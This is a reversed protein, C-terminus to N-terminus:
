LKEMEEVPLMRAAEEVVGTLGKVAERYADSIVRRKEELAHAEAGFGDAGRDLKDRLSRVEAWVDSIIATRDQGWFLDERGPSRGGVYYRHYAAYSMDMAYCAGPIGTEPHALAELAGRADGAALRQLAADFARLERDYFIHLPSANEPEAASLYNVNRVLYGAAERLRDNIEVNMEEPAGELRAALLNLLNMRAAREELTDLARSLEALEAGAEGPPTSEVTARLSKARQTFEYPLLGQGDLRVLLTGYVRTTEAARERHVITATDLQTHYITQRTEKLAFRPQLPPIGFYAYTTTETWATVQEKIRVEPNPFATARYDRAAERLFTVMEPPGIIGLDDQQLFTLTDINFAASVKGQWEPHSQLMRHCGILWDFRTDPAGFEEADTAIFLLTHRPRYGHELLAKAMALIAGVGVANDWYGHFWADYHAGIIIYRDELRGPIKGIVNHGTGKPNADVSSRITARVPREEGALLRAVRAGDKKCIQLIPITPRATGDHTNLAEGSEHQAYGNLYYFVVARAGNLEAEHATVDMWPIRDTDFHVFAIKGRVDLGVYEGATGNGADVLMASLGEPPTGPTPPYSSARMPELGEVELGAGGFDWAFVEFPEKHVDELGLSRMEELIMDGARHGARSGAPRFGLEYTGIDSLRGALDFLYTSDLKERFAREGPLATSWARPWEGPTQNTASTADM